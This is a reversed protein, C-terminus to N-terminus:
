GQSGACHDGRRDFRRLFFRWKTYIDDGNTALPASIVFSMALLIAFVALWSPPLWGKSVAIAGVILGFESFNALNLSSQWSTRARLRFTSFLIFYFGTKLPLLCLFALAIVFEQWGPLATMGVTLFFGVLFLNKLGLLGKALEHSKPHGSFMMGVLLAGLDGKMDVLEFLDAGGVAITIGFLILLEGHGSRDLMMHLVHRLPVIMFLVLAWPSPWKGASAAVFAVAAIDQIILVGISIKGHHTSGAGLEDLIKVAFVTSSFSLAFGILLSTQFSVGEIFSFAWSILFVFSSFLVTMFIMHISAVGWVQHNFLSRVKLKLGLTFLLLTIGLDATIRLFESVGVGFINLVFGAVLFGVLPPQKLWTAILGCMFAIIM